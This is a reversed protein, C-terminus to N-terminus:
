WEPMDLTAEPIEDDILGPQAANIITKLMVAMGDLQTATLSVSHEDIAARVQEKTLSRHQTILRLVTRYTNLNVQAAQRVAADIQRAVLQEPTLTVRDPIIPSKSM